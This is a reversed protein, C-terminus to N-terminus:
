RLPCGSVRSLTEMTQVQQMMTGNIEWTPTITIKKEDCLAKQQDCIVYKLNNFSSGFMSKQRATYKCWENGYIVVGKSALCNAFNDMTKANSSASKAILIIVGVIAIIALAYAAKKILDGKSAKEKETKKEEKAQERKLKRREARSLEDQPAQPTTTTEVPQTEKNEEMM